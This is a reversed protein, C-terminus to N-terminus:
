AAPKRNIVEEKTLYGVNDTDFKAWRESLEEDSKSKKFSLCVSSDRWEAFTLKGDGNTDAGAFIDVGPMRPSPHPRVVTGAAADPASFPAPIMPAAPPAPPAMGVRIRPHTPALAAITVRVNSTSLSSSPSSLLFLSLDLCCSTSTYQPQTDEEFLRREITAQIRNSDHPQGVYGPM